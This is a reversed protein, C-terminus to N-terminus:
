DVGYSTAIYLNNESPFGLTNITGDTAVWIRYSGGTVNVQQVYDHTRSPRCSNGLATDPIYCPTHRGEVNNGSITEVRGRIYVMPGMRRVQPTQGTTAKWGTTLGLNIWGTDYVTAGAANTPSWEQVWDVASGVFDRRWITGGRTARDGLPANAPLTAGVPVLHHLGIRPRLDTVFAQNLGDGERRRIAYLLLDRAGTPSYSASPLATSGETGPIRHLQLNIPGTALRGVILDTRGTEGGGVSSPVSLSQTTAAPVELGFGDVVLRSPISPSGIEVTSGEAPLTLGFASGNTDCVIGTQGAFAARWGRDTFIEGFLPEAVQVDAM